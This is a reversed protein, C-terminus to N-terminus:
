RWRKVTQKFIQAFHVIRHRPVEVLQRVSEATSDHRITNRTQIWANSRAPGRDSTYVRHYGAHALHSLVRRDYSGFPCSVSSIPHGLTQELISRAAALEATLQSDPLTRWPRHSLGHSGIKMGYNDLQRVQASTLYGPKDLRQGLIFFEGIRQHALLAPLAIDFDSQNADDFTLHVHPHSNLTALIAHFTQPTLWVAHEDPPISPPPDGLGHFTLNVVVAPRTPATPSTEAISM